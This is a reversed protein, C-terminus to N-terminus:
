VVIEATIKDGPRLQEIERSDLVAYSMTMAPMLGPIDGHKVVILKRPADVSIVEARLLYRKAPVSQCAGLTSVISFVLCFFLVPRSIRRSQPRPACAHQARAFAPQVDTPVSNM